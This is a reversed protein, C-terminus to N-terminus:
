CFCKQSQEETFLKNNPKVLPFLENIVAKSEWHISCAYNDLLGAAALVYAGTCIGGLQVGKQDLGRLWNKIAVTCGLHVELGGAVILVDVRETQFISADVSVSIGDSATETKGIESLLHWEFLKKESLQNAMRLPEVASALSIMTFNKLLLFGISIPELNEARDDLVVKM